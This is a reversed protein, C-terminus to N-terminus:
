LHGPDGYPQVIWGLLGTVELTGLDLRSTQKSHFEPSVEGGRWRGGGLRLGWSWALGQGKKTIRWLVAAILICQDLVARPLSPRAKGPWLGTERGDVPSKEKKLTFAKETPLPQRQLLPPTPSLCCGGKGEGRKELGNWAKQKVCRPLTLLFGGAQCPPPQPHTWGTRSLFNACHRQQGPRKHGPQPEM